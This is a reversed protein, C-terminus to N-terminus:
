LTNEHHFLVVLAAGLTAGSVTGLVFPDALPNRFVGQMVGGSLSLAAGCVMALLVRPLRVDFFITLLPSEGGTHGRLRAWLGAGLEWVPLQISNLLYSLLLSTVLLALLTAWLGINPRSM